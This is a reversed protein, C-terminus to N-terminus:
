ETAIIINSCLQGCKDVVDFVADIVPEFTTIKSGDAFSLTVQLDHLQFIIEVEGRRIIEVAVVWPVEEPYRTATANAPLSEANCGILIMIGVALTGLLKKM